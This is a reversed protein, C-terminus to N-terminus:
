VKYWKVRWLEILATVDKGVVVVVKSKADKRYKKCRESAHYRSPRYTDLVEGNRRRYEGDCKSTDTIKIHSICSHWLKLSQELQGEVIFENSFHPQKVQRETFPPYSLGLRQWNLQGGSREKCFSLAPVLKTLHSETFMLRGYPIDGGSDFLKNFIYKMGKKFVEEMNAKHAVVVSNVILDIEDNDLSLSKEMIDLSEDSLYDMMVYSCLKKGEVFEYKDYFTAVEVADKATMERVAIPNDLFKLMKTWVHPTIDPFSLVSDKSEKMPAALITDIYKSKSALTPKHYWQITKEDGSGLIVKLDPECSRLRKEERENENTITGENSSPMM